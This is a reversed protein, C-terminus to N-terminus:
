DGRQPKLGSGVALLVLSASTLGSAAFFVFGDVGYYSQFGGLLLPGLVSGLTEMIALAALAKPKEDAGFMSISYGKIFSPAPLGVALLVTCIYVDSAQTALGLATLAITQVILSLSALVVERKKSWFNRPTPQPPARAGFLRCFRPILFLTAFIYIAGVSHAMSLIYGNERGTFGFRVTSYVLLANFTYSQAVNYAFLSLGTLLYTPEKRFPQLPSILARLWGGLWASIDSRPEDTFNDRRIENPSDNRLHDLDHVGFQLYIISLSFIGLALLFSISFNGFLGAVFPSVSVGLM